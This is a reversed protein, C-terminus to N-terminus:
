GGERDLVFVECALQDQYGLSRYLSQGELSAALLSWRVGRQASLYLLTALVASALGCRRNEPQTFMNAIYAADPRILWSAGWSVPLDEGQIYAVLMDADRSQDPHFVPRGRAGNIMELEEPGSALRVRPDPAFLSSADLLRAMLSHSESHRYGLGRYALRCARADKTLVTLYHPLGPAGAQIRAFTEEPTLGSVIFEDAVDNDVGHFRLHPLGVLDKRFGGPLVFQELHTYAEIFLGVIEDSHPLEM